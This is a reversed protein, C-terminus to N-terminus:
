KKINELVKQLEEESLVKLATHMFKQTESAEKQIEAEIERIKVISDDRQQKLHNLQETNAIQEPTRKLSKAQYKLANNTKIIEELKNILSQLFCRRKSLLALKDFDESEKYIEKLSLEFPMQNNEKTFDIKKQYFMETRTVDLKEKNSKVGINTKVQSLDLEMKFGAEEFFAYYSYNTRGEEDEGTPKRRIPLKVNNNGFKLIVSGEIGSNIIEIEENLIEGVPNGRDVKEGLGIMFGQNTRRGLLLTNNNPYRKSAKRIEKKIKDMKNEKIKGKEKQM